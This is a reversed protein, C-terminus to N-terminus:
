LKQARMAKIVEGKRQESVPMYASFTTILDEHGFNMSWAKLQEPTKCFENMLMGHTRRFNHPTYAPMQVNSFATKVATYLQSTSSYPERSLGLNTFGKGKVYGMLPKPFLPDEPGFLEENRLHALWAYFHDYYIQDVPYFWIEITKGFKTEVERADMYVWGDEEDIHKLRLTTTAKIPGGTLMFFAFAAKNRKQDLSAEPMTEFARQCQKLSPYRMPRHTHAIRADKLTNRFYDSDAYSIRSKYGQQGALWHIFNKVIRLTADITAHSLPKNTRPNKAKRLSAKFRGADEIHFRKFTKDNTSQEYKILAAAIKSITKEDRGQAERMYIFYKRKIRENDETKKRM